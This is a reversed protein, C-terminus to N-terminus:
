ILKKISSGTKIRCVLSHLPITLCLRFPRLTGVFYPIKGATSGGSAVGDVFAGTYTNGSAWIYTGEGTRADDLYAGTYTEGNAWTRTGEGHQVGDVFSGTYASGSVIYKM